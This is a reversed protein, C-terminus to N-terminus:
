EETVEAELDKVLEIFNKLRDRNQRIENEKENISRLYAAKAEDDKVNEMRMTLDTTEVLSRHMIGKLQNVQERVFGLQQVANANMEETIGFKDAVEKYTKLAKSM